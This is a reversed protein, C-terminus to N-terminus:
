DAAPNEKRYREFWELTHAVKYDFHRRSFHRQARFSPPVPKMERPVFPPRRKKCPRM